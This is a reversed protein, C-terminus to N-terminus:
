MHGSRPNKCFLAISRLSHGRRRALLAARKAPAPPVHPFLEEFAGVTM